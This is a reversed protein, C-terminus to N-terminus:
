RPNTKAVPIMIGYLMSRMNQAAPRLLNRLSHGKLQARIRDNNCHGTVSFYVTGLEFRSKMFLCDHDRLILYFFYNAM